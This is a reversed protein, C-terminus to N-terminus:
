GMRERPLLSKGLPWLLGALRNRGDPAPVRLATPLVPAAPPKSHDAYETREYVCGAPNSGARGM